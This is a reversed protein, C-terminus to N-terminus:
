VLSLDICHQRPVIRVNDLKHFSNPHIIGYFVTILPHNLLLKDAQATCQIRSVLVFQLQSRPSFSINVRRIPLQNRFSRCNVVLCNKRNNGRPLSGSPHHIDVQWNFNLRFMEDTLSPTAVFTAVSKRIIIIFKIFSVQM